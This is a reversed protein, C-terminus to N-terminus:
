LATFIKEELRRTATVAANIRSASNRTRGPAERKFDRIIVEM